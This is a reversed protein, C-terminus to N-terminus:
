PQKPEVIEIVERAFDSLKKRDVENTQGLFEHYKRAFALLRTKFRFNAQEVLSLGMTLGGLMQLAVNGSFGLSRLFGLIRHAKEEKLMHLSLIALTTMDALYLMPTKREELRLSLEELLGEYDNAKGERLSQLIHEKVEEWEGSKWSEGALRAMMEEALPTPSFVVASRGRDKGERKLVYRSQVLGHSELIRLMEYASPNSVGLKRAVESYHVPHQAEKYLDLFSGLFERQRGTLKM